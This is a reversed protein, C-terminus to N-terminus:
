IGGVVQEDYILMAALAEEISHVIEYPASPIKGSFEQEKTTLDEGPVKIELFVPIGCFGSNKALVILDSMGWGMRSTDAVDYGAAVLADRIAVHNADVKMRYNTM